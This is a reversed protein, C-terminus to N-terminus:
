EDELEEEELDEEEEEEMDESQETVLEGVLEFDDENIPLYVDPVSLLRRFDPQSELEVSDLPVGEEILVIQADWDLPIILMNEDATLMYKPIKRGAKVPNGTSTAVAFFVAPEIAYFLFRDGSQLEPPNGTVFSLLEQIAAPSTDEVDLVSISRVFFNSRGTSFANRRNSKRRAAEQEAMINQWIREQIGINLEAVSGDEFRVKMRPRNLELVTYKGKRNEYEGNVEFV